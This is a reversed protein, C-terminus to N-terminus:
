PTVIRQGGLEANEYQAVVEQPNGLAQITGQQLWLVQTSLEKIFSMIHMVLVVTRGDRTISKMKEMSKRQFSIDGVMLVEDLLLIETDLHAAVAFALRVVMGSSYYKVPTDIFKEIEAFDVISDFKSAVEDRRMGLFSGNLFVNERGTLDPHFGTGVELLAGLRGHLEFSGTTPRTIRALIKLLTSKGSGNHGIVGLVEGPKVEFSLDRLAWLTRHDTAENIQPGFGLWARTNFVPRLVTDALASRISNNNRKQGLRYRKGLGEVRIAYEDM